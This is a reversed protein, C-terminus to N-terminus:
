RMSRCSAPACTKGPKGSPSFGGSIYAGVFLLWAVRGGEGTFQDVLWGALLLVGALVSAVLEAYNASGHAHGHDHGDDAHHEATKSPASSDASM